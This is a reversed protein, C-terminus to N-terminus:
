RGWGLKNGLIVGIFIGVVGMVGALSGPAPSPLKLKSFILGVTVGTGLALLVQKIDEPLM